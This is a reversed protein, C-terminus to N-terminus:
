RVRVYKGVIGDAVSTGISITDAKRQIPESQNYLSFHITGVQYGNFTSDIKVSYAGTVKATDRLFEYHGDSSFTYGNGNGAPYDRNVGWGGSENRLEWRGAISPKIREKKCATIVALLAILLLAKKM